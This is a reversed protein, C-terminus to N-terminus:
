ITKILLLLFVKEAIEKFDEIRTSNIEKNYAKVISRAIPHNSMYEGYAGIELLHDDSIEVVEFEGKTLTGTKDFVVTDIDKLLELYNGGKVLVGLASAKGIGAYLGLPVSIVLACPCSVVLFTCARYLWDYFNQNPLIIM